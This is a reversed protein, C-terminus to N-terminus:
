SGTTEASQPLPPTIFSVAGGVGNRPAALSPFDCLARGGWDQVLAMNFAM